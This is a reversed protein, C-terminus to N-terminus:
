QPNTKSLYEVPVWGRQKTDIIQIKASVVGRDIVNIPTGKKAVVVKGAAEMDNIAADNKAAIYKFLEDMNKTDEGLGVVVDDSLYGNQGSGLEDSSTDATAAPKTETQGSCGTVIVAFIIGIFITLYKKM